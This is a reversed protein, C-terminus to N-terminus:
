TSPQAVAAAILDLITNKSVGWVPALLEDPPADAVLRHIVTAEPLAALFGCAEEVYADVDLTQMRGQRWLRALRTGRLVMCQHLKAGSVGAAAMLAAARAAGGPKEEPLGAIAHAVVELGRAEARTAADTFEAATQTRGARELVADDASELGLEIWLPRRGAYEELVDLIGEGLCDPRTAISVLAVDSPSRLRDVASLAEAVEGTTGYTNSFAQFYAIVPQDSGDPRVRDIGTQLQRALDEGRRAAGTGSGRQDCYSCGGRGRTGDRNPCTFGADLAVRRLSSGFRERLHDVLSVWPRELSVTAITVRALTASEMTRM